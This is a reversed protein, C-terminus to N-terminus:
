PAARQAMANAMVCGAGPRAFKLPNPFPPLKLLFSQKLSRVKYCSTRVGDTGDVGALPRLGLFEGQVQDDAHHPYLAVANAM